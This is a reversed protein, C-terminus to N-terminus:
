IRVATIIFNIMKQAIGGYLRITESSGETKM